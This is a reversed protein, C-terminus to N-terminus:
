LRGTERYSFYSGDTLIVHDMFHIRM